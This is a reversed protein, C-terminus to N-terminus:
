DAFPPCALVCADCADFAVFLLFVCLIRSSARRGTATPLMQLFGASPAETGAVVVSGHEGSANKSNM